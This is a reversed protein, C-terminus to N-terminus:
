GSIHTMIQELNEGHKRLDKRIKICMEDDIKIEKGQKNKTILYPVGEENYKEDVHALTNRIKLIEDRFSNVGDKLSQIAGVKEQLQERLQGSVNQLQSQIQKISDKLIAHLVDFSNSATLIDKDILDQIETFQVETILKLDEQHKEIKRKKVNEFINKKRESVIVDESSQFFKLLISEIKHELVITEAIVLGRINNVEQHKRVTLFIIEKLRDTLNAIGISFSAREIWGKKVVINNLETANASYLLVETLINGKRIEDILDEGTEHEGLNLDTVILDYSKDKLLTELDEGNYKHVIQLQFGLAALYQEIKPGVSEHIVEDDDEFWLIKYNLRM